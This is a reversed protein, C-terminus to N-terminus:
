LLSNVYTIHGGRESSGPGGRCPVTMGLQPHDEQPEHHDEFFVPGPLSELAIQLNGSM